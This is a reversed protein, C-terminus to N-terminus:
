YPRHIPRANLPDTFTKEVTKRRLEKANSNPRTINAWKDRATQLSSTTYMTWLVTLNLRKLALTTCSVGTNITPYYNMHRVWSNVFKRTSPYISKLRVLIESSIIFLADRSFTWPVELWWSPIHEAWAEHLILKIVVAAKTSVLVPTEWKAELVVQRAVTIYNLVCRTPDGVNGM